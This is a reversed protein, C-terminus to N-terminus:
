SLCFNHTFCSKNLVWYRIANEKTLYVFSPLRTYWSISHTSNTSLIFMWRRSLDGRGDNQKCGNVGLRMQSSALSCPQMDVFVTFGLCRNCAHESPLLLLLYRM